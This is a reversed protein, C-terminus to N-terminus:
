RSTFSREGRLPEDSIEVGTVVARPPGQRCWAVLHGVADPDGEFVAEVRGDPCNGVWGSVGAARAQETCSHRFWVGQVQGSIFLRRRVLPAPDLRESISRGGRHHSQPPISV